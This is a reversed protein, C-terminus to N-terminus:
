TREMSKLRWPDNFFIYRFLWDSSPKAESYFGPPGTMPGDLVRVIDGCRLYPVQTVRDSLSFAKKLTLITDDDIAEPAQSTGALSQVGATNLVWSKQTLEIKCFVYGPFVAVSVERVPPIRGGNVFVLSLASWTRRPLTAYQCSRISRVRAGVPRARSPRNAQFSHHGEMDPRTPVYM